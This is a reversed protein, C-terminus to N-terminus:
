EEDLADVHVFEIRSTSPKEKLEMELDANSIIVDMDEIPAFYAFSSNELKSKDALLVVRSSVEIMKHKISAVDVNPTSLGRELSLGNTALFLTDIHLRELEETVFSGVTCHFQKRVIGGLLFVNIDSNQELFLAIEVDNTVVTLNHISTLMTALEMATTGTDIAIADGPRIYQLAAKAIAAKAEIHHSRKENSTLEFASNGVMIAGGHTRKLAGMAELETLDTRVTAPSVSFRECLANVTVKGERQVLESIEQRRVEAFLSNQRKSM